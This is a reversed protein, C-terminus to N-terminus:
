NEEVIENLLDVTNLKEMDFRMTDTDLRSVDLIDNVLKLLRESNRLSIRAWEKIKDTANKDSIILDLYGKIPTVPSKLEHAAINM